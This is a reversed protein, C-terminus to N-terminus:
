FTISLAVVHHPEASNSRDEATCRGIAEFDCAASILIVQSTKDNTSIQFDSKGGPILTPAPGNDVSTRGSVRGSSADTPPILASRLRSSCLPLVYAFRARAVNPM